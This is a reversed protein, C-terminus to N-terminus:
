SIHATAPICPHRHVHAIARVMANLHEVLTPLPCNRNEDMNETQTQEKDIGAKPFSDPAPCWVVGCWVVGCWVLEDCALPIPALPECHPLALL